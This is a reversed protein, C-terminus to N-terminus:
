PTKERPVLVDSIESDGSFFGRVMRVRKDLSRKARTVYDHRRENVPSDAYEIAPKASYLGSFLAIGATLGVAAVKYGWHTYWEPM